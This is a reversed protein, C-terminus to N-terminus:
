NKGEPCVSEGTNPTGPAYTTSYSFTSQSAFEKETYNGSDSTVLKVYESSM